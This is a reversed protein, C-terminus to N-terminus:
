KKRDFFDILPYIERNLERMRDLVTTYPEFTVQVIGKNSDRNSPEANMDNTDNDMYKFWHSGVCTKSELLGLLYHQYYLGRDTQTKVLWGAGTTNPFGMDDGKAYWESIIIPKGSWDHWDRVQDLDPGWVGYYNVAVVDVYKGAEKWVFPSNKESSHLRSGLYIHNPDYKKIAKSVTRYYKGFAFGMFEKRIDDNIDGKGPNAKGTREALWQKAADYNPKQAPDNPDLTLYKTIEPTLLENDSFIGLLYPEDKTAALVKAYNDCFTEFDPDFVPICDKVFGSHGVGPANLKKTKAFDVMFNKIITYVIKTKADRLAEADSWAGAGNFGNEKLLAATQDAWDGKSSFRKPFNAKVTPGGGSGVSVVGAHFFYGGDPDILWWRDGNKRAYFFGTADAKKAALGGFRDYAVSDGGRTYGDLLDLTYTRYEKWEDKPSRKVSVMISRREPEAIGNPYADKAANYYSMIDGEPLGRNYMRVEGVSGRFYKDNDKIRGIYLPTDPIDIAGKYPASGADVGNIYLQARGDDCSVTVCVWAKQRVQINGDIVCKGGDKTWMGFFVSGRDSLYMGPMPTSWTPQKPNPKGIIRQGAVSLPRIWIIITMGNKIDTNKEHITVYGNGTLQLFGDKIRGGSIIGDNGNAVADKVTKGDSDNFQWRGILGNEGALPLGLMIMVLLTRLHM